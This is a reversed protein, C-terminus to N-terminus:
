SNHRLKRQAIVLDLLLRLVALAVFYEFCTTFISALNQHQLLKLILELILCLAGSVFLRLESIRFYIVCPIYLLLAVILWHSILGIYGFIVVIFLDISFFLVLSDPAKPKPMQPKAKTATEQREVAAKPAINQHLVTPTAAKKSVAPQPNHKAGRSMVMDSVLQKKLAPKPAPKSRVIDNGVLRKAQNHPKTAM